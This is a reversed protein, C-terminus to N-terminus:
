IGVYKNKYEIFLPSLEGDFGTSYSILNNGPVLNWFVTDLHIYNFANIVEGTATIREVRKRGFTTDIVLRDGELLDQKVEIFEGSTDNSLRIPSTLPGQMTLKIPTPVDGDNVVMKQKSVTIQAFTASLSAPFSLGGEITIFEEVTEAVDEWFPSPCLLTFTTRQYSNSRNNKGSPFVPAQDVICEIEKVGGEYEYCLKGKGLKANFVRVLDARFKFLEETTDALIVVEFTIVRFDLLTDIYTQGDQFPTKQLQVDAGIGGTGNLKQLIYPKANSLTISEGRSNKYTVREVKHM